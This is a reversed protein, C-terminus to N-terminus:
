FEEGSSIPSLDFGKDEAKKLTQPSYDLFWFKGEKDDDGSESSADYTKIYYTKSYKEGLKNIEKRIYEIGELGNKAYLDTDYLYFSVKESSWRSKSYGYARRHYEYYFLDYGNSKRYNDDLLDNGWEVGYLLRDKIWRCFYGKTHELEFGMEKAQISNTPYDKFLPKVKDFEMRLSDASTMELYLSELFIQDNDRM